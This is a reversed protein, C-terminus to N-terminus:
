VKSLGLMKATVRALDAASRKPPPSANHHLVLLTFDDEPEPSGRHEDILSVLRRGAETPRTADIRRATELLGNEGLMEGSPSMAETLSDTYLMVLDGKGLPVAFQHYETPEIIGLPLGRCGDVHASAEPTEPGLLTWQRTDAHYWLPAPHGANTVILHDTPAWYTALVATAFRGATSTESFAKNLARAMRTQDITNISRRMQDRLVRALEGVDQGHGSVDAVAFRAIKGAACMSLYHIDGGTPAGHYPQAYVWVDLGPVSVGAEAASNGGWIEMCQM